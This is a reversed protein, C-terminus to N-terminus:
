KLAAQLPCNEPADDGARYIDLIQRSIGALERRVVRREGKIRAIYMHDYATTQHRMWAIVAAEARDALPIRETRAVTGSGVPIAQDTVADALDWALEEYRPAFHLFDVVAQRFKIVYADQKAIRAQRALELRRLYVPNQREEELDSKVKEAIEADCWLGIAEIRNKRKHVVSWCDTTKKLRRTVGPDGSPVFCWSDPVTLVKGNHIFDRPRNTRWVQIETVDSM